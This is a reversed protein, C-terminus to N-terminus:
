PLELGLVWGPGDGGTVKQIETLRGTKANRRYTTLTGDGQGAAVLFEEGGPILNFSRPTQGTSVQELSKLVGTSEDIAFVAISDHGRNSAYVFKGDQSIEIDACSGREEEYNQPLTSLTGQKALVGKEQDYLCHTVSKGQENVLYVWKGNPHFQMHRPGGGEVGDLDGLDNRKLTGAEADFVFQDVCNLEGTHPTFAFCNDPSVQICHAKSGVEDIDVAGGTVIGNTVRSVSVLGDGYYAALLWQQSRDLYVYAAGGPAPVKGIETLDGTEPDLSYSVFENPNRVAAYLHKKDDSIIFAGPSGSVSVESRRTLLGTTEDLKYCGIKREGRESVYIVTEARLNFGALILLFILAYKM